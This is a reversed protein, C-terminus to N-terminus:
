MGDNEQSCIEDNGITKKFVEALVTCWGTTIGMSVLLACFLDRKTATNVKADIEECLTEQKKLRLYKETSLFDHSNEIAFDISKCKEIEAFLETANILGEQYNLIVGSICDEVYNKCETSGIIEVVMNDYDANSKEQQNLLAIDSKINVFKGVSGGAILGFAVLGAALKGKNM